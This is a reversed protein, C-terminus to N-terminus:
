TLIYSYLLHFVYKGVVSTNVILITFAGPEFPSMVACRGTSVQSFDVDPKKLHLIQEATMQTRAYLILIYENYNRRTFCVNFDFLLELVIVAKSCFFPRTNIVSKRRIVIDIITKAMEIM